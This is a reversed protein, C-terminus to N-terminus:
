HVQQINQSKHHLPTEVDHRDLAQFVDHAVSPFAMQCVEWTSSLVGLAIGTCPSSLFNSNSSLLLLPPPAIRQMEPTCIYWM